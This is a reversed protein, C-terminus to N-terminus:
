IDWEQNTSGACPYFEVHAGDSKGHGTVDLCM